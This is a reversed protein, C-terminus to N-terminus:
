AGCEQKILIYLLPGPQKDPHRGFWQEIKSWKDQRDAWKRICQVGSLDPNDKQWRSFTLGEIVGAVFSVQQDSTMKNLVFDADLNQALAQKTIPLAMWLLIAFILKLKRFFERNSNLLLSKSCNLISLKWQCFPM